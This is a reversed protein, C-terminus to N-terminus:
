AEAGRLAAIVPKDRAYVDRRFSVAGDASAFATFYVLYTPLANRLYITHTEGSSLLAPLKSVVPNGDRRLLWEALELPRSLRICGSSFSREERSFLRRDPTDHLYIAFPNPLMFKIRGLANASGPRRRLQHRFGSATVRNWDVADVSLFDDRGELKVEFGQASLAAPDAKLAPLKDEIAISHPVNWYPNLVLYSLAESFVPTQRHPRGVIVDMRLVQEGDEVATLAFDAINVQLYSPPTARPLWRWRELNADIRDIWQVTTANLVELTNAGVVGDPELGASKQYALVAERLREDYTQDYDGPGLLRQKLLTVRESSDGPRILDGRPTNVTSVEGADILETRKELLRRYGVTSPWLRALLDEVPRGGEAALLLLAAPDAEDPALQWGPDLTPPKVAGSSRHRVQALFADSLLLELATLDAPDADAVLRRITALHYREPDLGHRASEELSRQLGASEGALPSGPLWLPRHNRSRYVRRLDEVEILQRDAIRASAGADIGEFHRRLEDQPTASFARQGPFCGTVLLFLLSVVTLSRRNAM